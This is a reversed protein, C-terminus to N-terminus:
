SRLQAGFEAELSRIIRKRIEAVENDTMTRDLAQYTINFALSKKGAGAQNGRYVDFLRVRTVADSGALRILQVIAEAPTEESVVVALDELVPPFVPVSSLEYREPVLPQILDLDIEALQVPYDPLEYREKVLPHLEGAWGIVLSGLRLQACKGPHFSLGECAEFRVGQLQLNSFIAEIIGKLDYFDM